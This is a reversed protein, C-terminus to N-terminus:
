RKMAFNVKVYKEITDVRRLGLINLIKLFSIQEV